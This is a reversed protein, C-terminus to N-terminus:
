HEVTAFLLRSWWVIVFVYAKIYRTSHRSPLNLGPQYQV